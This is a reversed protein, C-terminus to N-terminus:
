RRILHCSSGATEGCYVDASIHPATGRKPPAPDGDLAIHASGFGVEMDLPMEMWGNPWLLCPCFKKPPPPSQGRKQFPFIPGWLVVHGRSLDVERGSSHRRLGNWGDMQGCCIHASFQPATGKQPPSSPGWRVCHPRLRLRGAHWTEDQDM